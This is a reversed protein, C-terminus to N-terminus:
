THCLEVGVVKGNNENLKKLVDDKQGASLGSVNIRTLRPHEVVAIDFFITDGKIQTINLQVDDFLGQAWLNKVANSTAEGPVTIRQGVILKSLIILTETDLFKAGSMTTGGILYEKPNLYSPQDSVSQGGTGLAQGLATTSIITLFVAILFRNM